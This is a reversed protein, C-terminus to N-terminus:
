SAEARSVEIEKIAAEFDTVFLYRNAVQPFIKSTIDYIRQMFTNAGVVTILVVNEDAGETMYKVNNFESGPLGIAETFDLIVDFRSDNGQMINKEAQRATYLENWTWKGQFKYVFIRDEQNGHWGNTVAM